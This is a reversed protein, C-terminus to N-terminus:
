HNYLPPPHDLPKNVTKASPAVVRFATMDQSIGVGTALSIAKRVNADIYENPM